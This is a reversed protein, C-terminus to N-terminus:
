SKWAQSHSTSFRRSFVREHCVVVGAASMVAVLDSALGRGGTQKFCLEFMPLPFCSRAVSPNNAPGEVNEKLPRQGLFRRLILLALNAPCKAHDVLLEM